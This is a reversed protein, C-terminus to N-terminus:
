DVLSRWVQMESYIELTDFRSFYTEIMIGNHICHGIDHNLRYQLISQMITLNRIWLNNTVGNRRTLRQIGDWRLPKAVIKCNWMKENNETQFYDLTDSKKWGCIINQSNIHFICIGLVDSLTMPRSVLLTVALDYFSVTWFFLNGKKYFHTDEM